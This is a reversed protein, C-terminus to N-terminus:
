RTFRDFFYVKGKEVDIPKKADVIKGREKLNERLRFSVLSSDFKFFVQACIQSSFAMNRITKKSWQLDLKGWAFNINKYSGSFFEPPLHPLITAQDADCHFFLSSILRSGQTLFYLPTANGGEIKAIGQHEDDYLRPVFSQRFGALFMKKFYFLIKEPRGRVIARKTENLLSFLGEELTRDPLNTLLGLRHWIPFIERFDGRKKVAEWEKQKYSGLFLEEKELLILGSKKKFVVELTPLIHYRTKESWVTICGRQLDQMVTFDKLPGEVDFSVEKIKKRELGSLDYFCILTPFVQVEYITGPILFCIGPEHSFPNMM